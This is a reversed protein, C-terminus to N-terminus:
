HSNRRHNRAHRARLRMRPRRRTPADFMRRYIRRLGHPNERVYRMTTLVSAHGLLQQLHLGDMGRELARHAYGHRFAHLPAGAALRIGARNALRRAAHRFADGTIPATTLANGCARFLAGGAGGRRLALYADLAQATRHTWFIYRWKRGKGFVRATREILDVQKEELTCVETIRAGTDHLLLVMARNRAVEEADRAYACAALLGELADTGYAPRPDEPVFPRPIRHDHFFRAQADTILHERALFNWFTQMVRYLADISAPRLAHAPRPHAAHQYTQHDTTLYVMFARFEDLTISALWPDAGQQDRWLVWVALRHRYNRITDPTCRVSRNLCFREIAAAVTLADPSAPTSCPLDSMRAEGSASPDLNSAM